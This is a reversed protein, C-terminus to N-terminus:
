NKRVLWNFYLVLIQLKLSTTLRKLNENSLVWQWFKLLLLELFIEGSKELILLLILSIVNIQMAIVEQPNILDVTEVKNSLNQQFKRQCERVDGSM